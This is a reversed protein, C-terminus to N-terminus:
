AMMLMSFTNFHSGQGATTMPRASREKTTPRHLRSTKVDRASSKTPNMSRQSFMISVTASITTATATEIDIPRGSPTKPARLRIASLRIRGM